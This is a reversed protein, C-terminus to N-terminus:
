RLMDPEVLGPSQCQRIHSPFKQLFIIAKIHNNNLQLM